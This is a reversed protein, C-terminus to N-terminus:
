QRTIDVRIHEDIANTQKLLYFFVWTIYLNEDVRARHSSMYLPLLTTENPIISKSVNFNAWRNTDIQYKSINGVFM